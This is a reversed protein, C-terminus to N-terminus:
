YTKQKGFLSCLNLGTLVKMYIALQDMLMKFFIGIPSSNKSNYCSGEYVGEVNSQGFFLEVVPNLNNGSYFPVFLYEISSCRSNVAM